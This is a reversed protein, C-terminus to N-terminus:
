EDILSYLVGISKTFAPKGALLLVIKLVDMIENKTIGYDNLGHKMQMKIAVDNNTSAAIAIAILKLTKEDLVEGDYVMDNLKDVIDYHEPYDEELKNMNNSMYKGM